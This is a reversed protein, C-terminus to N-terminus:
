YEEGPYIKYSNSVDILYVRRANEQDIIAGVVLHTNDGLWNKAGFWRDYQDSTVEKLYLYYGDKVAIDVFQYCYDVCTWGEIRNQAPFSQNLRAHEIQINVWENLEDFTQFPRLEGYIFETSVIEKVTEVTVTQTMYIPEYVTKSPMFHYGFALGTILALLIALLTLKM